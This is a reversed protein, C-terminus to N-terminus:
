AVHPPPAPQRRAITRDRLLAVGLAALFLATMPLAILLMSLADAAPTVLASFLVITVVWVRWSRAIARGSLVGLFNLLVVFVPLVFAIGTALVIKLVFDVYYSAQLITSDQDAAFGTLLQVMHPFLTFGAICGAAFLPLAAFLFGFTYKRERSTLGPVLFAFLEFLWAPSSLVIGTFLAVKLKLDFAGTVSDYNLSADRTAALQEIPERVLDIVQDSLLWGIIVGVALAAAARTGRHAAERLHDSLPARSTVPPISRQAAPGTLAASATM